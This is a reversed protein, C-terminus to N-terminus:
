GNGNEKVARAAGTLKVGFRRMFFFKRRAWMDGAPIIKSCGKCRYAYHPKGARCKPCTSIVGLGDFVIKPCQLVGFAMAAGCDRCKDPDVEPDKQNGFVPGGKIIAITHKEMIEKDRHYRKEAWQM